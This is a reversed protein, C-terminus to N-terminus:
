ASIRAPPSTDFRLATANSHLPTIAPPRNHEGEDLPLSHQARRHPIRAHTGQEPEIDHRFRRFMPDDPHYVLASQGDYDGAHPDVRTARAIM